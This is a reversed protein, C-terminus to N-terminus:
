HDSRDAARDSPRARCPFAQMAATSRAAHAPGEAPTQRKLAPPALLLSAATAASGVSDDTSNQPEDAAQQEPAATQDGPPTSHPQSTQHPTTQQEQPQYPVTPTIEDQPPEAPPPTTAARDQRSDAEPQTAVQTPDTLDLLFADAPPAPAPSLSERGDVQALPPDPSDDNSDGGALLNAAQQQQAVLGAELSKRAEDISRENMYEREYEDLEKSQEPSTSIRVHRQLMRPTLQSTPVEM